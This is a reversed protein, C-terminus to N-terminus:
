QFFCSPLCSFDFPTGSLLLNNCFSNSFSRLKLLLQTQKLKTANWCSIAQMQRDSLAFIIWRVKCRTIRWCSIEFRRHLSLQRGNQDQEFLSLTCSEFISDFYVRFQSTKQAFNMINEEIKQAIEFSRMWNWLSQRPLSFSAKLLLKLSNLLLMKKLLARFHYSVKVMPLTFDLNKNKRMGSKKKWKPCRLIHEFKWGLYNPTHHNWFFVGTKAMEVMQLHHFWKLTKSFYKKSHKQALM